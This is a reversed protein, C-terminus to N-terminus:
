QGASNPLQESIMRELLLPHLVRDIIRILEASESPCVLQCFQVIEEFTLKTIEDSDGGEELAQYAHTTETSWGLRTNFEELTRGSKERLERLYPGLEQLNNPDVPPLFQDTAWDIPRYDSNKKALWRKAEEPQVYTRSGDKFTVLDPNKDQGIAAMRVTKEKLGAIAALEKLELPEDDLELRVRAFFIDLARLVLSAPRPTIANDVPTILANDEELLGHFPTLEKYTHYLNSPDGHWENANLCDIVRSMHGLIVSQEIVSGASGTAEWDHEELVERTTVDGILRKPADADFLNETWLGIEFLIQRTAGIVKSKDFKQNM